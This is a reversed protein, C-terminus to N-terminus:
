QNQKSSRDVSILPTNFVGVIITNSNIEGKIATLPQRVYHPAGITPAYIIILKIHEQISGRIMLHRRQRKYTKIKFDIKASILIAVGAKKWNGNAHFIKKWGENETEIHGEIQLSDRVCLM